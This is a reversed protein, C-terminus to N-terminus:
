KSFVYNGGTKNIKLQKVPSLVWPAPQSFKVPLDLDKCSKCVAKESDKVVYCVCITNENKKRNTFVVDYRKYSSLDGLYVLYFKTGKPDVGWFTVSGEIGSDASSIQENLMGLYSKATEGNEDYGPNYLAILLFILIVIGAAAIILEITNDTVLNARKNLLM